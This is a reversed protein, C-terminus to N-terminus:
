IFYFFWNWHKLTDFIVSNIMRICDLIDAEKLDEEEKDKIM